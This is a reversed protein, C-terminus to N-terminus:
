KKVVVYYDETQVVIKAYKKLHKDIDKILTSNMKFMKDNLVADSPITGFMYKGNILITETIFFYKNQGENFVIYDTTHLTTRKNKVHERIIQSMSDMKDVIREVVRTRPPLCFLDRFWGNPINESISVKEILPIPQQNKDLIKWQLKDLENQGCSDHGVVHNKTISLFTGPIFERIRCRTNLLNVESLIQELNDRKVTLIAKQM